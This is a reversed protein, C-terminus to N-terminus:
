GCARAALHERGAASVGRADAAVLQEFYPYDSTSLSLLSIENFGTNRYSELAAQSSRRSRRPNAAAAQDGHEPLLPVAVPLRAHDRDRDSRSRMRRVARDARGAAADRRSRRDDVARDDRARRRPHPQAGGTPRRRLVGARLVAACLCVAARRGARALMEERQAPPWRRGDRLRRRQRCEDKLRLWDDCVVPLSPEGDGIVFLDIFPALPEPNQACPGGAIVLPHTWRASPARALPIGGLDLM